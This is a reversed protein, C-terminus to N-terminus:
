RTPDPLTKVLPNGRMMSNGFPKRMFPNTTSKHPTPRSVQNNNHVALPATADRCGDSDSSHSGCPVLLIAHFDGNPLMGSATIEGSDNITHGDTITLDSDPPVFANLDIMPGGPQWLFGHLEEAICDDSSGVVQGKINMGHADSCPDDGITGLDIIKGRRWLVAHRIEDGPLYSNGAVDGADNMAFVFGSSGGLTGLDIITGRDWLFPHASQDGALNSFGAVQGRNNLARDLSCTGGLTGVDKMEGRESFFAHTVVPFGFCDFPTLNVFSFGAVQGSENIFDASADPGGLTGLNRLVGNQWLFPQFRTGFFPDAIDNQVTGAVQDRNNISNAFGNSGGFDGLDVIQGNRWLVPRTVPSGFFSDFQGNESLGAIQGHGNIANSISNNGGPLTGLDTLTGRDWQSAHLDLCNPPFVCNPDTLLTDSGGAVVGRNNVIPFIPGESSNPGGLTGLDILKYRLHTPKLQPTQSASQVVLWPLSLGLVILWNVRPFGVSKNM